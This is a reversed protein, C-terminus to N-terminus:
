EDRLRVAPRTAYPESGQRRAIGMSQTNSAFTHYRAAPGPDLVIRVLHPTDAAPM